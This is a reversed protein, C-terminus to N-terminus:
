QLLKRKIDGDIAAARQIKSRGGADSRSLDGKASVLDSLSKSEDIEVDNSESPPKDHDRELTIELSYLKQLPRSITEKGNKDNFIQVVAGRIVHVKGQIIRLVKGVKWHRRKLGEEFISVVDGVNIKLSKETTKM